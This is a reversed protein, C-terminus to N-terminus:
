SIYYTRVLDFRFSEVLGLLDEYLDQSFPRIEGIAEIIKEQNFSDIATELNDRVEDPLRLFSQKLINRSDVQERESMYQKLQKAKLSSAEKKTKGDLTSRVIRALSNTDFPKTIFSAVGTKKMKEPTLSASYGSCIIILIDPRVQIMKESMLDGTLEPMVQDTVIIDYNDPDSTFLDLAHISSICGTVQYGFSTLMATALEVLTAEDDVFLIHENGNLSDSCVDVQENEIAKESSLPILVEFCSGHSLRSEVHIHGDHEQVIGNVVSLGMGTGEGSKKTTFFPEFIQSLSDESIGKGTDSVTLLAYKNHTLHSYKSDLEPDVVISKLSVAIEGNKQSLAQYANTCLNMVVQHIQTPDAFIVGTNADIDLKLRISSPITKRLLDSAEFVIEHIEIYQRESESKRSYLLIQQVLNKARSAATMVSQLRRNVGEDGTLERLALETYGLIASLINNFDHAIGGALVGMAEMKFTQRLQKELQEQQKQAKVKDTIDRNNGRRGLYNGAEDYVPRCVHEIWREDGNKCKISFSMTHLMTQRNNPDTYHKYVSEQYSSTVLRFMLDPDDIFEDPKHGTVRECSPSIYQYDGEPNIWYEWDFTNDALLRYKQESRRLANEADLRDTEDHVISYLLKKGGVAIPGSYVQVDRISGCALRHQFHFNANSGSKAEAMKAKVQETPLTNIESICKQLLTEKQYGYFDCAASNAGAIAGTQPNILLIVSCNEDFLSRYRSMSERLNESQIEFKKEIKEIELQLYKRRGYFSFFLSSALIAVFVNVSYLVTKINQSLGPAMEVTVLEWQGDPLAISATTFNQHFLRSEGWFAKEEYKRLAYFAPDNLGESELLEPVNLVLTAFGWFSGDTFVPMRAILALSGDQRLFYPGSLGIKKNKITEQIKQRVHPRSDSLLNHGLTNQTYKQPVINRHVGDPSIMLIQIEPFVMFLEELFHDVTRSDKEKNIDDFYNLNSLIFARIGYLLSFRENIDHELRDSIDNLSKDSLIKQNAKHNSNYLAIVCLGFCFFSCFLVLTLFCRPISLNCKVKFM